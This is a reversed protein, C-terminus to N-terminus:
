EIAPIDPNKAVGNTQLDKGKLGINVGFGISDKM